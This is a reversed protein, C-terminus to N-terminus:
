HGSFLTIPELAPDPESWRRDPYVLKRCLYGVTLGVGGILFNSHWLLLVAQATLFLLLPCLLCTRRSWRLKRGIAAFLMAWGFSALLMIPVWLFQEGLPGRPPWLIILLANTFSFVLISQLLGFRALSRWLQM